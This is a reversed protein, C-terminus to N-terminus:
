KAEGSKVVLDNKVEVVGPELGVMRAALQSDENTDVEGSLIATRGAILVKISKLNPNSINHLRNQIRIANATAMPVNDNLFSRRGRRRNAADNADGSAANTGNADQGDGVITAGVKTSSARAPSPAQNVAGTPDVGNMANMNNMANMANMNAFDAPSIYGVGPMFTGPVMGPYAFGTPNLPMPGYGMGGWGFGLAAATLNDAFPTYGTDGGLADFGFMDDRTFGPPAIGPIMGPLLGNMGMPMGMGNGVAPLSSGFTANSQIGASYNSIGPISQMPAVPMAGFGVRPANLGFNASNTTSNAMGPGTAFGGANGLGASSNGFGAGGFMNRNANQALTTNSFAVAVIVCSLVFLRM